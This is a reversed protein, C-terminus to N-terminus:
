FKKDYTDISILWNGISRFLPNPETGLVRGEFRYEGERSPNRVNSLVLRMAQGAAVPEQIVVELSRFEENWYAERVEVKSGEVELRINEPDFSGDFYDPGNLQIEAVAVDQAPIDLRYRDLRRRIGNFDLIYRLVPVDESGTLVLGSQAHTIQPQIGSCVLTLATAGILSVLIRPWQILRDSNPQRPTPSQIEQNPCSARHTM